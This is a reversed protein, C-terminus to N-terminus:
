SLVEGLVPGLRGKVQTGLPGRADRLFTATISQSYNPHFDRESQQPFGSLAPTRDWLAHQLGLLGQSPLQLRIM